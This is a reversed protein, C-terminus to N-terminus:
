PATALPQGDRLTAPPDLVIREGPRLGSLIEIRGDLLRGTKVLRLVARQEEAVFVREMQGFRTVAGAPVLLASSRGHPVLLRAFQGSRALGPPLAVKVLVSRSAADAAASIEDIAGEVPRDGDRLAVALPDGRKLLAGAQEPVFGEARLRQTSELVLLAQGPVALDGPLAHKETIVGAFPARLTAFAVLAEAEAVSAEAFRQRDEADRLSEPANVGKEVLMRVRATNRGAEALQAQAQRLRAAIEPTNLTLLVEGAAVPQGLAVPLTAISGTLKAALTAREAPRVTAPADVLVPLSEEAVAATRVAVAPPAPAAPKDSPRSCGSLLIGILAASIAPRVAM